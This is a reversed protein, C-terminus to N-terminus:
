VGPTVTEATGPSCFVLIDCGPYSVGPDPHHVPFQERCAAKIM